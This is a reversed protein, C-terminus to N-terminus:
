QKYNTPIKINKQCYFQVFLLDARAGLVVFLALVFERRHRRFTGDQREVSPVLVGEPGPRRGMGVSQVAVASVAGNPGTPRVNTELVVWSRHRWLSCPSAVTPVLVSGPGPRRGM